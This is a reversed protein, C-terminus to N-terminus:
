SSKRFNGFPIIDPNDISSITLSSFPSVNITSIDVELERITLNMNMILQQMLKVCMTLYRNYDSKAISIDKAASYWLKQENFIFGSVRYKIM